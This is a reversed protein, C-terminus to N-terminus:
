LERVATVRMVGKIDYKQISSMAEVPVVVGTVEVRKGTDLFSGPAQSSMDLGYFAGSDIQLGIACELTVPGSTDKHPLCTTTGTLTTQQSLQAYAGKDFRTIVWSGGLYEVDITVPYVATPTGDGTTEIVNGEIRYTQGDRQGVSVIDIRAPAPSSVPRGPAEPPNQKWVNLLEEAVLSGYQEHMARVVDEQPALTSVMKMRSGFTEVTARVAQESNEYNQRPASQKFGWNEGYAAYAVAGLILVFIIGFIISKNM